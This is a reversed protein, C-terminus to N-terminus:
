KIKNRFEIMSERDSFKMSIEGSENILRNYIDRGRDEIASQEVLFYGKYPGKDIQEFTEASFLDTWIGTKLNVKVLQNATAYKETTFLLYEGDISLVPNDVRLIDSTGDLGDKYPKQDTLVSEKLDNINVLMIKKTDYGNKNQNRVYVIQENDPLLIPDSDTQNFTLQKKTGDTFVVYVNKDQELTKSPIVEKTEIQSESSVNDDAQTKNNSSNNIDSCSTLTITLLIPLFIKKM